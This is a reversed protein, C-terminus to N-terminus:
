MPGVSVAPDDLVEPSVVEWSGDDTRSGLVTAPKPVALVREREWDPLDWRLPLVCAGVKWAAFAGVLHEVSNPLELVVMDGQGIGRLAFGRAVRNSQQDLHRWSIPREDGATNVFIFATAEPQTEALGSLRRGYSVATGIEDTTM